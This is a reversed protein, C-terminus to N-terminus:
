RESVLRYSTQMIDVAQLDSVYMKEKLVLVKNNIMSQGDVEGTFTFRRIIRLICYANVLVRWVM